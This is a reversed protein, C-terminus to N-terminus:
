SVLLSSAIKFPLQIWELKLHSYPMHILHKAYVQIYPDPAWSPLQIFKPILLMHAITSIMDISINM